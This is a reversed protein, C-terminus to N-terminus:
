ALGPARTSDACLEIVVRPVAFGSPTLAMNPDPASLVNPRFSQQEQSWLHRILRRTAMLVNSSIATRGSVYTVQVNRKGAMFCMAVGSARRTVIGTTLDVTYGYADSGTGAFIDQATLTRVYTSGYSEVISTISIVPSWLLNIQSTGGDYTEVRTKRLIPGVIDEMIPTVAAILLRIDEDKTTSASMGIGARADALSIIFGPDPAMVNFVDSSTCANTGTALWDVVYHGALTAVYPVTTTYVGVLGTVAPTVTTLDPLTITLVVTTANEPAGSANLVTFVLPIPDGLDFTAM